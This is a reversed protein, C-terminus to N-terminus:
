RLASLADKFDEPEPAEFGVRKGSRPHTFSLKRAHLLQRPAAYGTLEKLRQNQRNGYTM